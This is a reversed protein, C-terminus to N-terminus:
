RPFCYFQESVKPLFIIYFLYKMTINWLFETWSRFFEKLSTFSWCCYSIYLFRMRDDSKVFGDFAPFDSLLSSCSMILVYTVVFCAHLMAVETPTEKLTLFDRHKSPVRWKTVSTTNVQADKFSTPVM